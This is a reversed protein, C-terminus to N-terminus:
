RTAAPADMEDQTSTPVPPPVEPDVQMDESPSGGAPAPDDGNQNAQKFPPPLACM